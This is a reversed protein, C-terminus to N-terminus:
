IHLAATILAKDHNNFDTIAKKLFENSSNVLMWQASEILINEGQWKNRIDLFIKGAVKKDAQIGDYIELAIQFYEFCKKLNDKLTIAELRYAEATEFSHGGYLKKAIKIAKDGCLENNTSLEIGRNRAYINYTSYLHTLSLYARYLIIDELASLNKEIIDYALDAELRGSLYERLLFMTESLLLKNELLAPNEVGGDKEKLNISKKNWKLAEKYSGKELLVKVIEDYYFTNEISKKGKISERIKIGEKRWYLAEDPWWLINDDAIKECIVANDITTDETKLEDYILENKRRLESM